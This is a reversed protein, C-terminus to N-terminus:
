EAKEWITISKRLPVKGFKKMQQSSNGKQQKLTYIKLPKFGIQRAVETSIYDVPIVEGAYRVNDNVFVVCSGNRCIRFLEYFIFSLEDFYGKVMKIVGKNNIDGNNSRFELSFLVEKLATNSQIIDVVRNYDKEKDLSSYYERLYDLKNKSEVTCSLLDQRAQKIDDEGFGLYALELAYIRTYDYRNCYPPSTIVGHISDDALLPLEFLSSCQKYVTSIRQGSAPFYRQFYAIDRIAKELEEIILKQLSPLKGKNLVVRFPKKGEAMRLMNAEIVKKSREDWRLYQGDKATYSSRELSNLICLIGLEKIETSYNSEGILDSYFPIDFETNEPYAGKTISIYKVRKSYGDQRNTSSIFALFDKLENINYKTVKSKVNMAIITMPLIDYGISNIKLTQATFSTTGSGLFPDLITDGRKIGIEDILMEVLDSSFGEKYKLWSHICDRKSLQYSVSQRNFKETVETIPLYMKELDSRAAECCLSDASFMEVSWGNIDHQVDDTDFFPLQHQSMRKRMMAGSNCLNYLFYGNAISLFNSM